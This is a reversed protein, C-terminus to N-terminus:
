KQPAKEIYVSTSPFAFSLGCDKALRMIALNARTRTDAFSAFDIKKTYFVLIINLSSNDFELFEARVGNRKDVGELNLILERLKPLFEEIQEPASSYTFGLTQTVKRAGMKSLNEVSDKALISNPITVVTNAFTRIRTSRFGIAEINGECSSTKVWDGVIFPRDLIISVSGFFNAITDQSAFALAMGGIGLSAVITNVNVGCNTLVSLVAIAAVFFKVVRRLFEMLNVTSNASKKKLKQSSAYFFADIVVIIAWFVACWFLIGIARSATKIASESEFIFVLAFYIGLVWAFMKIPTRIKRVFESAFSESNKRSFFKAIKGFMVNLVYKVILFTALLILISAICQALTIGFVEAKLFKATSPSKDEIFKMAGALSSKFSQANDIANQDIKTQIHQHKEDPTLAKAQATQQAAATEQPAVAQALTPAAPLCAAAFILAYNLIKM